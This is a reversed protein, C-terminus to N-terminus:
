LGIARVCESEEQHVDLILKPRESSLLCNPELLKRIPDLSRQPMAFLMPYLSGLLTAGLGLERVLFAIQTRNAAVPDIGERECVLLISAWPRVCAEITRPAM